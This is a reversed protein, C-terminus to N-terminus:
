NLWIERNSSTSTGHSAHLAIAASALLLFIFSSTGLSKTICSRTQLAARRRRHHHHEMDRRDKSKQQRCSQRRALTNNVASSPNSPPAACSANAPLPPPAAAVLQSWLSCPGAAKSRTTSVCRRLSKWWFRTTWSRM